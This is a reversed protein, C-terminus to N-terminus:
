TAFTLFEPDLGASRSGLRRQRRRVLPLSLRCSIIVRLGPANAAPAACAVSDEGIMVAGSRLDRERRDRRQRDGDEQDLPPQLGPVPPNVTSTM